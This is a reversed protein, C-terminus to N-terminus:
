IGRFGGWHMNKEATFGRQFGKEADAVAAADQRKIEGSGQVTEACTVGVMVSLAEKDIQVYGVTCM